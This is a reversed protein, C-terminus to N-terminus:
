DAILHGADLCYFCVRDGGPRYQAGRHVGFAGGRGPKVAGASGKVQGEAGHVAFKHRM